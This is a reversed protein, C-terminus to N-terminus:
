RQVKLDAVVTRGAAVTVRQAPAKLHSNWVALRYSGPPVGALTYRGQEDVAAAWPGPAVFVFGLMEPHVSCLQAYAGPRAFTRSREESPKFTGLNFGEADPSYVNHTQDDHNLYRVTDGAAIVLLHPVFALHRQDLAHTRPAGGAPGDELYVVTEELYKAPTADVRGTITGGEARAATALAAALVTPLLSRQVRPNM